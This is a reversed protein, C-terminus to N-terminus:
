LLKMLQQIYYNVKPYYDQTSLHSLIKERTRSQYKHACVCMYQMYKKYLTKLKKRWKSILSNNQFVKTGFPFRTVTTSLPHFQLRLVYLSTRIQIHKDYTYSKRESSRYMRSCGGNLMAIKVSTNSRTFTAIIARSTSSPLNPWKKRIISHKSNQEQM